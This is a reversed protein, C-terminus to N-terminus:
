KGKKDYFDGKGEKTWKFFGLLMGVFDKVMDFLLYLLFGGGLVVAIWPNIDDM